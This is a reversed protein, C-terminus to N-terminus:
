ALANLQEIKLHVSNFTENSAYADHLRHLFAECQKLHIGRLRYFEQETVEGSEVAMRKLDDGIECLFLRCNLELLAYFFIVEELDYTITENIEFQSSHIEFDELAADEFLHLRMAEKILEYQPHDLIFRGAAVSINVLQKFDRTVKLTLKNEFLVLMIIKM